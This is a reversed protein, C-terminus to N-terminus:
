FTTLVSFHCVIHSSLTITMEKWMKVHGPDIAACFANIYKNSIMLFVFVTLLTM